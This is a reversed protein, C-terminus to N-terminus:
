ASVTAPLLVQLRNLKCKYSKIEQSILNFSHLSLKLTFYLCVMICLHYAYTESRVCYYYSCHLNYMFSYTSTVTLAVIFFLMLVKLTINIEVMSHKYYFYYFIRPVKLIRNLRILFYEKSKVSFIFNNLLSLSLSVNYLFICM